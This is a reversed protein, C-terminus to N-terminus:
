PCLKQCYIRIKQTPHNLNYCSTPTTTPQMYLHHNSWQKSTTTFNPQHSNGYYIHEYHVGHKKAKHFTELPHVHM